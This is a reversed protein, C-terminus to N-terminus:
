DGSLEALDFLQQVEVFTLASDFHKINAILGYSYNTRLSNTGFTIAVPCGLM